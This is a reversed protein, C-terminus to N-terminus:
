QRFGRAVQALKSCTPLSTRSLKKPAFKGIQGLVARVRVFNVSSRPLRSRSRLIPM